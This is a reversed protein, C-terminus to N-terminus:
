WLFNIQHTKARFGPFDMEPLGLANSLSKGGLDTGPVVENGLLPQDPIGQQWITEGKAINFGADGLLGAGEIPVLPASVIDAIVCGAVGFHSGLQDIGKIAEYSGWYALYDVDQPVDNVDRWAPAVANQVDTVVGCGPVWGLWGTCTALGTPDSQNVPDDGAYAVVTNCRIPVRM